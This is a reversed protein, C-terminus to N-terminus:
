AMIPTVPDYVEIEIPLYVEYFFCNFNQSALVSLSAVPSVSNSDWTSLVKIGRCSSKLVSHELLTHLSKTTRGLPRMDGIMLLSKLLLVQFTSTVNRLVFNITYIDPHGSNMQQLDWMLNTKLKLRHLEKMWLLKFHCSCQYAKRLFATIGYWIFSYVRTEYSPNYFNPLDKKLEQQVDINRKLMRILYRGFSTCTIRAEVIYIHVICM